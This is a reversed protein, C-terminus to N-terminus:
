ARLIVAFRFHRDEHYYDITEIFMGYRRFVGDVIKGATSGSLGKPNDPMNGCTCFLMGEHKIVVYLDTEKSEFGFPDQRDAPYHLILRDGEAIDDEELMPPIDGFALPSDEPVDLYYFDNKHHNEGINLDHDENILWGHKWDVYVTNDGKELLHRPIVARKNSIPTAIGVSVEIPVAANTAVPIGIPAVAAYDNLDGPYVVVRHLPRDALQRRHACGGWLPVSLALIGLILLRNQQHIRM